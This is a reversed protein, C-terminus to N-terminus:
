VGGGSQVGSERCGARERWQEHGHLQPVRHQLHQRRLPVARVRRGRRQLLVPRARHALRRQRRLLRRLHHQQHLRLRRRRRGLSQPPRRETSSLFHIDTNRGAVFILSHTPRVQANLMTVNEIYANEIYDLVGPYQGISGMSVGHTGNCWLNQVFIDSTNPKPSFCDDGINVESNTVSIGKVNLTDWGDTNKPEASANNSIADIRVRDFTIDNTRVLFNTWCPSNLYHIGSVEVRTANDTLFLIPRYFTNDPDLIENGAFANYWAQGNGNLTGSGYIRIDEGGWVWFTISKQFDYYFNNAQWYEIDDTFLIEGDLQVHVDCLFTLDLKQGIVYTEGEKLVLTGGHNAKKLGKLFDQSIDDTENASARIHVKHRHPAKLRGWNDHKAPDRPVLAAVDGAAPNLVSAASAAALCLSSLISWKM